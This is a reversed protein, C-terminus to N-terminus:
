QLKRIKRVYSEPKTVAASHLVMVKMNRRKGVAKVDVKEEGIHVSVEVGSFLICKKNIQEAFAERLMEENVVDDERVKTSGVVAIEYACSSLVNKDHYYFGGWVSAIFVLAIIPLILATEITFSGKYKRM